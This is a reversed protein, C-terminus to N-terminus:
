NLVVKCLQLYSPRFNHSWQSLCHVEDICVFALRPLSKLRKNIIAEPSLYLINIKGNSLDQVLLEFEKESMTSDYTAARLSKTLNHLQDQMLSILPSVVLVLAGPYRKAYLMAAFQYILSKGYGTSLIALTSLGSAIRIIAEQQHKKFNKHGFDKDLIKFAYDPLRDLVNGNKDM